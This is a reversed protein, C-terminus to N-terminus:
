LENVQMLVREGRDLIEKKTGKEMKDLTRYILGIRPLKELRQRHRYFFHWYLSNFPCAREGSRAKHDYTCQGCYDSLSHIYRASSVYPKSAIRGGDAFQSMGRTNPLEVWQVADVYIGLYWADVADPHVGALLAFNGTIMLRQIHHAYATQLSQLICARLCGM